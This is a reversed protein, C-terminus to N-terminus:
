RCATSSTASRLGTTSSLKVPQSSNILFIAESASSSSSSKSILLICFLWCFLTLPKRAYMIFFRPKTSSSMYLSFVRRALSSLIALLDPFKKSKNFNFSELSSITPNRGSICTTNWPRSFSFSWNILMM